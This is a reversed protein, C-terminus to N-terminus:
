RQFSAIRVREGKILYGKLTFLSFSLKANITIEGNRVNVSLFKLNDCKM